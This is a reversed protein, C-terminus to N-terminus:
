ESMGGIETGQHNGNENGERLGHGTYHVFVDDMSPKKINVTTIDIGEGRMKDMILPLAHTVDEGIIVRLSKTDETVSKVSKLSRLIEAAVKNNTTELYILDKGLKNKLEDSTGTVIIKGHDIISIRDSLQDAEEMYHTTLFITTGEKKIERLYEWMKMRTQIDFGVTPEDLFLVAPRTMLGRALELRRKMGGSLDKALTNRKSELDTLRLLEDIREKREKKPMSYIKGHYELNEYVTMEHDLCLMQFVIGISRRVSKPDKAVDYGNVRAEGKQIKKLTTLINIVTSKGAGNPGLFSFIEGQKVTFSINDVAKIPGYSHELNNVEIVNKTM